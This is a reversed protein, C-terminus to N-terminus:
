RLVKGKFDTAPKSTSSHEQKKMPGLAPAFREESYKAVSGDESIEDARNASVFWGFEVDSTGGQLETVDFGNQTENTVFVGKCDGKLQIFVSLPHKDNVVINKSFTPDLTIHMKGNVLKGIGFDQFLNEPSEPCSLVVANDNIDKVVTNVTGNGEIKRNVGAITRCGVYAYSQGANTDFYGGARTIGAAASASWGVSGFEDGNFSAGSGTGALTVIGLNSGSAAIGTGTAATLAWGAIGIDTGTFAGGSGITLFNLTQNNGAGGVATGSANTNWAFMAGGASQATQAIVGDGTGAGAAATNLGVIGEGANNSTEGWVGASGAGSQQTIGVVGASGGAGAAATNIGWLADGAANANDFRGAWSTASSQLVHLRHLPVITAIGIRLNTVDEYIPTVTCAASAGNSKMIYDTSGCGVPGTPGTAGTIGTPGTTGTLGTAGTAGTLGIPGIPGAAGTPGTAGNTGNTGNTGNIGATGTPGVAGTSGTAGTPGSLQCLSIWGSATTFYFFCDFNTDYVLLGNAPAIISVRLATTMRPTLVGKNTSLMELIASADPTNTGIGVNDQSFGATSNITLTIAISFSLLLLKKMLNIYNIFVHQTRCYLYYQKM